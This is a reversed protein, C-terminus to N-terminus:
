EVDGPWLDGEDPSATVVSSVATQMLADDDLGALHPLQTGAALGLLLSGALAGAPLRRPAALRIWRVPKGAGRRAVAALLRDQLERTVPATESADLQRDLSDADEALRRAEASTKMLALAAACEAVPWRAPSAGYADVLAAFRDLSM